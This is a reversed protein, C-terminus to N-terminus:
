APDRRARSPAVTLRVKYLPLRAPQPPRDIFLMLMKQAFAPAVSSQAVLADLFVHSGQSTSAVAYLQTSCMVLLMNLIQLMLLYTENSCSPPVSLGKTSSRWLGHSGDTVPWPSLPTPTAPDRVDPRCGSRIALFNSGLGCAPGEGSCGLPFPLTLLAMAGSVSGLSRPQPANEEMGAGPPAEFLLPIEELRVRENFYKILVGLFCVTNVAKLPMARVDRPVDALVEM